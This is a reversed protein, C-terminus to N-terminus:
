LSVSAVARRERREYWGIYLGTAVILPAGIWTTPAPLASFMLWGYFTAWLLSSYDMPAVVAVPALRLSGTLALQGAGGLMGILILMSWIAPSHAAAAFPMAMGTPILSTLSFWFVTTAAPETEGLRRLLIMVCSGLLAGVLGVSAGLLSMHGGGPQLVILVGAFGVMVAGWRHRGTPEKLLLASLITAFVPTTFGITIAEALPLLRIAALNFAVGSVGVVMRLAHAKLRATRLSPLGATAIVWMLIVPVAFMQRHFVSEVLSVGRTSVYKVLAASSALCAMALLRLLVGRLTQTM